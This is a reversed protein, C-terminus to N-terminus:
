GKGMDSIPTQASLMHTYSNEGNENQKNFPSPAMAHLSTLSGGTQRPDDLRLQNAGGRLMKDPSEADSYRANQMQYSKLEAQNYSRKQKKKDRMYCCMIIIIVISIILLVSVALLLIWATHEEETQYIIENETVRQEREQETLLGETYRLQQKAATLSDQM